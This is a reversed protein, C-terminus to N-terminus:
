WEGQQHPPVRIDYDKGERRKDKPMGLKDLLDQVAALDISGTGTPSGVMEERACWEDASKDYWTTLMRKTNKKM